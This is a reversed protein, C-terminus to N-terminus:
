DERIQNLIEFKLNYISVLFFDLVVKNSTLKLIVYRLNFKLDSIKFRFDIFLYIM